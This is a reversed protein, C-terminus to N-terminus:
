DGLTVAMADGDGVGIALTVEDRVGLGVAM